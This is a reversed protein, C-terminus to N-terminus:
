HKDIANLMYIAHLIITEIESFYEQVAKVSGPLSFLLTKGAVGAISRSLMASPKLLGYKVRILDMIGPLEYDIFNQVIPITIDRPGIGTGGTTFILDTNKALNEELVRALLLSDDAILNYRIQIPYEIKNFYNTLHEILIKGSLDEYEGKSARDSLTIVTAQFIRKIHEIEDNINLVGPSIVRGIYITNISDIKTIEIQTNNNFHLQDLIKFNTKESGNYFIKPYKYKQVGLNSEQNVILVNMENKLIISSHENLESEIKYITNKM